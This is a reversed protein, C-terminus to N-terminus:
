TTDILRHAGDGAPDSLCSWMDEAAVDGLFDFRERPIQCLHTKDENVTLKIRRMIERMAAM